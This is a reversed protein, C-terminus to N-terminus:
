STRSWGHQLKLAPRFGCPDSILTFSLLGSTLTWTYRGVTDACIASGNFFYIESGNVVVDGSGGAGCAGLATHTIQYTTTTLTLKLLVCVANGDFDKVVSPPMFWDGLLEAPVPGGPPPSATPLPSAATSPTPLKASSPSEGCSSVLFVLGGLVSIVIAVMPKSTLWGRLPIKAEIM